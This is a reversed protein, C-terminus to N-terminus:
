SRGRRCSLYRTDMCACHWTCHGVHVTGLTKKANGGDSAGLRMPGSGRRDAVAPGGTELGSLLGPIFSVTGRKGRNVYCFLRPSLGVRVSLSVGWWWVACVECAVGGVLSRWFPWPWAVCVTPMEQACM